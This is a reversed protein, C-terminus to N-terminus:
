SAPRGRESTRQDLAVLLYDRRWVEGPELVMTGNSVVPSEDEHSVRIEFDRPM